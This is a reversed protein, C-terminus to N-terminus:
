KKDFASSKLKTQALGHSEPAMLRDTSSASSVQLTTSGGATDATREGENEDM